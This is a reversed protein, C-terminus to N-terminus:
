SKVKTKKSLLLDYEEKTCFLEFTNKYKSHLKFKLKQAKEKAEKESFGAKLYSNKMEEQLKSLLRNNESEVYKKSRSSFLGSDKMQSEYVQLVLFVDSFVFYKM